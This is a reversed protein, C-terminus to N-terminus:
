APAPADGNGIAAAITYDFGEHALAM